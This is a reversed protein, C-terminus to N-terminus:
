GAVCYWSGAVVCGLSGWARPRVMKGVSCLPTARGFTESLLLTRAGRDHILFALNGVSPLFAIVQEEAPPVLLGTERLYVCFGLAECKVGQELTM